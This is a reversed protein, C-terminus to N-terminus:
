EWGWKGGKKTERRQVKHKIMQNPKARREANLWKSQVPLPRIGQPDRWDAMRRAPMLGVSMSTVTYRKDISLLTLFATIDCLNHDVQGDLLTCLRLSRRKVSVNNSLALYVYLVHIIIACKNAAQMGDM